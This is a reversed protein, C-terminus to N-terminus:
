GASVATNVNCASIVASAKENCAEVCWDVLLMRKTNDGTKAIPLVRFRRLYAMAWYEMDLVFVDADNSVVPIFHDPVIDLLGFDTDWITVAGLVTVGRQAGKSTRGQDQYQTATRASDNAILYGSLSQKLQNNILVTDAEGGEDHCLRVADLIMKEELGRNTSGITGATNPTGNSLTASAPSGGAGLNDNTMCWTPVGASLAVTSGAEARSRQRKLANYELDRKLEYGKKMVQYNTESSRGPKDVEDSRGSVTLHKDSIQLHNGRKDASNSSQGEHDRGDLQANDGAAALEDVNWEHYAAKAKKRKAMTVFPTKTPSIRFIIDGLDERKSDLDRELLTQSPVAAYIKDGFGTCVVLFLALLIAGIFEAM